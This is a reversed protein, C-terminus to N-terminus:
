CASGNEFRELPLLSHLRRERAIPLPEEIAAAPAIERFVGRELKWHWILLQSRASVREVAEATSQRAARRFPSIAELRAPTRTAASELASSAHSPSPPTDTAGFTGSANVRKTFATASVPGVSQRKM